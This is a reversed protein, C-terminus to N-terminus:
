CTSLISFFLKFHIVLSNHWHRNLSLFLSVIYLCVSLGIRVCVSVCVLVRSACMPLFIEVQFVVVANCVFCVFGFHFCMSFYVQHELIQQPRILAIFLAGFISFSRFSISRVSHHYHALLLYLSVSPVYMCICVPFAYPIFENASWCM